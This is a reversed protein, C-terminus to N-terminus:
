LVSLKEFNSRVISAAKFESPYAYTIEKAFVIKLICKETETENRCFRIIESDTSAHITKDFEHFGIRNEVYINYPSAIISRNTPM